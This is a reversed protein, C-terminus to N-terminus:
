IWPDRRNGLSAAYRAIRRTAELCEDPPAVLAVRVRGHGPNTGHADRSLFSGPLVLVNEQEYLERAFSQDDIGTDLWLYFGADPRRANMAPGLVDIADAFKKRYLARNEQVHAEDNWARVSLAQALSSMAAGHYTRYAHFSGLFLGDGAIFGSRLGPLNSRKSLSHFVVCREFDNVGRTEAAQLLGPPPSSEEFYIESYCEDSAILFDYREALDILEIFDQQSFVAGTPNGPTCVFVLRTRRWVSQPVTGFDMKYGTDASTNVYYPEAGALLAAGEYIQYFPNPLMVVPRETASHDIAAQVVSFLAERTGSACLVNREPDVGKLGFRRGLWGAIARRLPGSGRTTPYSSLTDLHAMTEERVFAPAGHQPEGISLALPTQERDPITHKILASLKEFPYPQLSALRPNM